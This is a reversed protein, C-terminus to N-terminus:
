ESVCEGDVCEYGVNCDLLNFCMTECVEDVENPACEYEYGNWAYAENCPDIAVCNGFGDCRVLGACQLDGDLDEEGCAYAGDDYVCEFDPNCSHATCLTDENCNTDDQCCEGSACCFGNACHGSACDCDSGCPQGDGIGDDCTDIDTATGTDTDPGTDTESDVDSDTDTDTDTGTETDEDNGFRSSSNCAPVLALAVLLSLPCLHKV